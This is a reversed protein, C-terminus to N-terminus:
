SVCAFFAGFAAVRRGQSDALYELDLLTGSGQAFRGLRDQWGEQNKYSHSFQIHTHKLPFNVSDDLEKLGIIIHDLPANPWSGEDVLTAGEKVFEEDEFIREPSREVNIKFGKAVLQKVVTPSLASRHELPKTERIPFLNDASHM